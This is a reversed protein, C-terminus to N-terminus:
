IVKLAIAALAFLTSVVWGSLTIAGRWRNVQESMKRETLMQDRALRDYREELATTRLIHHHVDVKIEAVAVTLDSLSQKLELQTQYLKELTDPDM